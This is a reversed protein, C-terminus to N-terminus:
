KARSAPGFYNLVLSFVSFSLAMFTQKWDLHRTQATAVSNLWLFLAIWSCVKVRLYLAVFGFILSLLGGWDPPIEDPDLRKPMYPLVRDRSKVM